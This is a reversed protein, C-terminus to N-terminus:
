LVMMIEVFDTMADHIARAIRIQTLPDQLKRADDLNTMFGCEVLIAPCKVKKIISFNAQKIGRDKFTGQRGYYSHVLGALTRTKNDAGFEMFVAFGNAASWGKKASANCHISILACPEDPGLRRVLQNVNQVRTRLPINIFGPALNVVEYADTKIDTIHKCIQRNVVGEYFGPPIQPSRKGPTLYHGFARGSHGPDLFYKM